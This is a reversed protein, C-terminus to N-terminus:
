KKDKPFRRKVGMCQNVISDLPQILERGNLRDHNLQKIIADLQERVDPYALKREEVPDYVPKVNNVIPIVRGEKNTKFKIDPLDPIHKKNM